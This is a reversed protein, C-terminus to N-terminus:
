NQDRISRHDLNCFGVTSRSNPGLPRPLVQPHPRNAPASEPGGRPSAAFDAKVTLEVRSPWTVLEHSDIQGDLYLSMQLYM